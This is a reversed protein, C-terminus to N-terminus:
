NDFCNVLKVFKLPGIRKIVFYNERVTVCSVNVVIWFNMVRIEMSIKIM